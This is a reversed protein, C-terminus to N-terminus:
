RLPLLPQASHHITLILIEAESMISYLVRYNGVLIERIHKKGIEPVIRGSSPFVELRTVAKMLRDITAKAFPPSQELYFSFIQHLDDNAQKSWIIEAM